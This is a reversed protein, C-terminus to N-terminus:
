VKVAVNAQNEMEDEAFFFRQSRCTYTKVKEEKAAKLDTTNVNQFGTKDKSQVNTKLKLSCHVSAKQQEQCKLFRNRRKKKDKKRQNMLFRPLPATTEEDDAGKETREKKRSRSLNAPWPKTKGIYM